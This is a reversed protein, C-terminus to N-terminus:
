SRRPLYNWASRPHLAKKPSLKHAQLQRDYVASAQSRTLGVVMKERVIKEREDLNEKQAVFGANESELRTNQGTLQAIKANAADLDAQLREADTQATEPPAAAQEAGTQAPAAPTSTQADSQGLTQPAIEMEDTSQPKM